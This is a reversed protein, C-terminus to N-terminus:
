LIVAVFAFVVDVTCGIFVAVRAPGDVLTDWLLCNMYPFNPVNPLSPFHQETHPMLYPLCRLRDTNSSPNQLPSRVASPISRPAPMKARPTAFPMGAKAFVPFSSYWM